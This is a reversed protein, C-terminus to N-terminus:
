RNLEERYLAYLDFGDTVARDFAADVCQQFAATDADLRWGIQFDDSNYDAADTDPHFGAGFLPVVRKRMWERVDAEDLFGYVTWRDFRAVGVTQVAAVLNCTETGVLARRDSSAVTEDRLATWNVHSVDFFGPATDAPAWKYFFTKM